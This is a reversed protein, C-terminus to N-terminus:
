SKLVNDKSRVHENQETVLITNIYLASLPRSFRLQPLAMTPTDNQVTYDKIVVTSIQPIIVNHHLSYLSQLGNYFHLLKYYYNCVHYFNCVYYFFLKTTIQSSLSNRCYKCRNIKFICLHRVNYNNKKRHGTRGNKPNKFNFTAPPELRISSTAM